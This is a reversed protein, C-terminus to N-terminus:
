RQFRPPDVPVCGGERDCLYKISYTVEKGTNEEVKDWHEQKKDALEEKKELDRGGPASNTYQYTDNSPDHTAGGEAFGTSLSLVLLLTALISFVNKMITSRFILSKEGVKYFLSQCFESELRM